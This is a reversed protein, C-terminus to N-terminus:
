THKVAHRHTRTHRRTRTYFHPPRAQTFVRAAACEHFSPALRDHLASESGVLQVLEQDSELGMAQWGVGESLRAHAGRGKM